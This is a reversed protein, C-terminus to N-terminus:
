IKICVETKCVELHTSPLNKIDSDFNKNNLFLAAECYTIKVTTKKDTTEFKLTIGNGAM